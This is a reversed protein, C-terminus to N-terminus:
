SHVRNRDYYDHLVCPMNDAWWRALLMIPEGSLNRCHKPIITAHMYDIDDNIM